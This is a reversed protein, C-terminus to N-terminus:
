IRGPNATRASPPVLLLRYSWPALRMTTFEKVPVKEGSFFDVNKRSLLVCVQYFPKGIQTDIVQPFHTDQHTAM